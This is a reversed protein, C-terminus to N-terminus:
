DKVDIEETRVVFIERGIDIEDDLKREYNQGSMLEIANVYTKNTSYKDELYCHNKKLYFVAHLRSVANNDNVTYDCLSRKRGIKFENHSILIRESTSKRELFFRIIMQKKENQNVDASSDRCKELVPSNLLKEYCEQDSAYKYRYIAQLSSLQLKMVPTLPIEELFTVVSPKDSMVAYNFKKRCNHSLLSQPSLIALFASANELHNAIVEPWETGAEIGKDYWLRIGMSQLYEILSFASEEDKHSYSIFLYPQDGEYPNVDCKKM